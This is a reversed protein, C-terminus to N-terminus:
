QWIASLNAQLMASVPVGKSIKLILLQANSFPVSEVTVFEWFFVVIM